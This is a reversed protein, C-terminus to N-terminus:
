KEAAKAAAGVKVGERELSIVINDGANLGEVIETFEWNALGTKVAREVLTGENLLM